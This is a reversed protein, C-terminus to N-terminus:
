SEAPLKGLNGGGGTAGVTSRNSNDGPGSVGTNDNATNNNVVTKGEEPEPPRDGIKAPMDFQRRVWQETDLDNTILRKDSLNAFAAALAQLDKAEGINRVQMKPYKDTDFNYRVLQPFIELNFIGCIYNAVYKLTKEFISLQASSTARGGGSSEVGSLLFELMVNLLIMMNHHEISKMVDVPDGELEAFGITMGPPRLIFAEENTRLNRGLERAIAKDDDTYGVPLEIDPVGIGHREKQIADIKYLHEKYYWHKYATRLISKGEIKGSEGNFTFIALRDIPLKLLKTKGKAQIANQEILALEGHDDYEIKGITTASRSAIKKIMTRTKRNAMKRPPAWERNEYVIEFARYGHEYMKLIDQLLMEFPRDLGTFINYDIFDRIDLNEQEDNFPEIFFEAALVPTKAGRLSIDCAVDGNTM